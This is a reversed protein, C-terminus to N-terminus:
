FAEAGSEAAFQESAAEAIVGALNKEEPAEGEDHMKLEDALGEEIKDSTDEAAHNREFECAKEAERVRTEADAEHEDGSTRQEEGARMGAEAAANRNDRSEAIRKANCFDQFLKSVKRLEPEFLTVGKSMNKHDPSWERIDFKPPNGGNWSVLNLEKAWGDKKEAIVGLHAVIEFTVDSRENRGQAM